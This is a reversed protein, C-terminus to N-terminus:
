QAGGKDSFLVDAIVVDHEYSLGDIRITGFSFKQFRM